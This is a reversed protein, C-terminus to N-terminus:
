RAAARVKHELLARESPPTEPVLAFEVRLSDGVVEVVPAPQRLVRRARGLVQLVRAQAAAADVPQLSLALSGPPFGPRPRPQSARAEDHDRGGLAAERRSGAAVAAEASSAGNTPDAGASEAGVVKVGARDSREASPRGAEKRVAGGGAGKIRVIADGLM